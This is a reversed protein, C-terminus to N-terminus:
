MAFRLLLAAVVGIEASIAVAVVYAMQYDGPKAAIRFIPSSLTREDNLHLIGAM